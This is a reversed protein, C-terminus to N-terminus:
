VRELGWARLLFPTMVHVAAYECRSRVTRVAVSRRRVREGCLRVRLRRPECVGLLYTCLTTLSAFCRSAVRLRAYCLACVRWMCSVCWHVVCACTDCTDHVTTANRDRRRRGGVVKGKKEPPKRKLGETCSKYLAAPHPM